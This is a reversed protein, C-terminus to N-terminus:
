TNCRRHTQKARSGIGTQSAPGYTYVHGHAVVYPDDYHQKQPQQPAPPLPAVSPRQVAEYM